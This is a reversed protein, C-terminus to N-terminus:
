CPSVSLSSGLADIISNIIKVTIRAKNFVIDSLFASAIGFYGVYAFGVFDSFLLTHLWNQNFLYLYATLTASVLLVIAIPLLHINAQRKILIAAVLFAFILANTATFIRFERTLATATFLYKQRILATLKEQAYKTSLERFQLQDYLGAEIKKRCACNLDAMEAIVKAVKEPIKQSIQRKIDAIEEAKDKFLLAAKAILFKEDIASVKEKVILEVRLRIVEKAIGEVFLPHTFSALFASAFFLLGISGLLLILPRVFSIFFAM